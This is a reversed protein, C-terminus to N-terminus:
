NKEARNECDTWDVEMLAFVSLVLDAVTIVSLCFLYVPKEGRGNVM